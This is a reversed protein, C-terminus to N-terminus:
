KVLAKDLFTDMMDQLLECDLDNMIDDESYDAGSQESSISGISQSSSSSSSFRQSTQRMNENLQRLLDLPSSSNDFSKTAGGKNQRLSQLDISRALHPSLELRNTQRCDENKTCSLLPQQQPQQDKQTTEQEGLERPQVVVVSRQKPKEEFLNFHNRFICLGNALLL